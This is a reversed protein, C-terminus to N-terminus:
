RNSDLGGNSKIYMPRTILTLIRIHFKKQQPSTGHYHTLTVMAVYSWTMYCAASVWETLIDNIIRAKLLCKYVNRHLLWATQELQKSIYLQCEVYYLGVLYRICLHVVDHSSVAKRVRQEKMNQQQRQEDHDTHEHIKM